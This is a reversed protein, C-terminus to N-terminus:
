TKQQDIFFFPVHVRYPPFFVNFFFFLRSGFSFVDGVCFFGWFFVGWGGWLLRVTQAGHTAIVGDLRSKEVYESFPAVVPTELALVPTVLHEYAACADTHALLPDPLQGTVRLADLMKSVFCSNFLLAISKCMAKNEQVFLM